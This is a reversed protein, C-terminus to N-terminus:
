IGFMLRVEKAKGKDGSLRSVDLLGEVIAVNKIRGGGGVRYRGARVQKLSSGHSTWFDQELHKNCGGWKGCSLSGWGRVQKISSCHSNM